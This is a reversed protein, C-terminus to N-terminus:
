EWLGRLEDASFHVGCNNETIVAILNSISEQFISGKIKPYKHLLQRVSIALDDKAIGERGAQSVFAQLEDVLSHMPAASAADLKEAGENSITQRDDPLGTRIFPEPSVPKVQASADKRFYRLKIYAYYIALGALCCALYASWTIMNYRKNCYLFPVFHISRKVGCVTTPFINKRVKERHQLTLLNGSIM